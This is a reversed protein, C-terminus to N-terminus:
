FISIRRKNQESQRYHKPSVGVTQRFIKTFYSPSSFGIQNAIQTISENTQQLLLLSQEIRYQMIYDFISENMNKKFFRCCESKCLNIHASIDDLTLKEHYHEHIYSLIQRLREQQHAYDNPHSQFDDSSLLTYNKATNEYILMWIHSLLQQIYMEVPFPCNISPHSKDSIHIQWLKQLDDLVSKEWSIDKSFTMSSLHESHLLPFVYKQYILSDEYGYIIKSDFTVSMYICNHHDHMRGTHLQNSNCFLAQGECLTYVKQEIQYDIQGQIILTLEIEPHWHWFFSGRDYELLNETSIRVPFNRSGHNKIEKHQQNVQLQM